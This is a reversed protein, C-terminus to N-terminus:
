ANRLAYQRRGAKNGRVAHNPNFPRNRNAYSKAERDAHETADDYNATAALAWDFANQWVIQTNQEITRM